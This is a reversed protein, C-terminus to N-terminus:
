IRNDSEVNEFEITSTRSRRIVEVSHPKAKPTSIRPGLVPVTSTKAVRPKPKPKPAAPADDLPNRLTLQVEGRHTQLSLKKAQEPDVQLTVTKVVKPKGDENYTEQAVALVEIRELLTHAKPQEDGKKDDIAIVDVYTNPLIFGGVGIEENVRISMARKGKGITAVLGAGSGPAALEASLVPQGAKLRTVAVRGAVAKLDTFAGQPLNAKPWAALTLNSENLPMGVECDRSAIVIRASPVSDQQVLQVADPRSSLWRNALFVAFLGSLIAVALALIAGYKKM